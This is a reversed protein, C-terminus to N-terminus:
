NSSFVQLEDFSTATKGKEDSLAKEVRQLKSKLRPLKAVYFEMRADKEVASRNAFAFSAAKKTAKSVESRALRVFESHQEHCLRALFTDITSAKEPHNIDMYVKEVMQCGVSNTRITWHIHIQVYKKFFPADIRLRHTIELLEDDLWLQTQIGECNAWNQGALARFGDASFTRKHKIKRQSIGEVQTWDSVEVDQDGLSELFVKLFRGDAWLLDYLGTVSTPFRDDFILTRM